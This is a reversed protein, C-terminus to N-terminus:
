DSTGARNCRAPSENKWRKRREFARAAHVFMTDAGLMCEDVRLAFRDQGGVLQECSRLHVCQEGDFLLEFLQEDQEAGARSELSCRSPDDRARASSWGM